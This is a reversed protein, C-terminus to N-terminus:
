EQCRSIILRSKIQCGGFAWSNVKVRALGLPKAKVFEYFEIQWTFTCGFESHSELEDPDCM